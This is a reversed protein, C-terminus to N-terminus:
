RTQPVAAGAYPDFTAQTQSAAEPLPPTPLSPDAQPAPPPGVQSDLDLQLLAQAITPAGFLVFCGGLVTLGRRLDLRGTLMRYGILAVAIVAVASGLSGLLVAEIWQAAAEFVGGSSTLGSGTLDNM